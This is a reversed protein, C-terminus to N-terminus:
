LLEGLMRIGIPREVTFGEAFPVGIQRGTDAWRARLFELFDPSSIPTQPETSDPDYFQSKYALVAALKQDVVTTIDICFDPKIYRDQIYHYVTRPRHANQPVGDLETEIKRLGALFCAESELQGGRGHDPHRDAIANCLVITPKHKRIARILPMKSAKSLDFFGDPLHMQERYALGLIKSAAQSEQARIEKTGRTGLEGATLDVIGVEHGAAIHLLITGGCALEADDPHAAFVLIRERGLTDAM